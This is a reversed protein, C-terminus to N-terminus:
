AYEGKVSHKENIRIDMIKLLPFFSEPEVLNAMCHLGPKRIEGNLYQIICAAVPAATFYYGDGHSATMEFHVREGNQRGDAELKLVTRYPPASFKKLGWGLWRACFKISGPFWKLILYIKPLIIYDVLKNFGGVYFGTEKISPFIEPIQKLEELMMAYAYRSGLGDGFDFKRHSDKGILGPHIWKGNRYISTNFMKLENLLEIVTGDSYNSEKWNIKIASGVVASELNDFYKSCYRIMAAPMGPHFGGETIFCLGSATIKEELKRLVNLKETSYQIDLYDIGSEIACIAVDATYMSTSSAVIVMDREAFARMLSERDSADVAMGQVKNCYFQSNLLGAQEEAKDPNRGAIILNSGTHEILLRSIVKGTAGYGGLILITHKDM